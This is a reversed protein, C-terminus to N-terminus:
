EKLRIILQDKPARFTTEHVTEGCRSIGVRYLRGAELGDLTFEGKPDMETEWGAFPDEPDRSWAVRCRGVAEGDPGEVRGRTRLGQALSIHIDRMADGAKGTFRTQYRVCGEKEACLFIDDNSVDPRMVSKLVFQGSGGTTTPPCCGIQEYPGGRPRCSKIFVSVGALGVGKLDTVRGTVVTPPPRRRMTLILEQRSGTTVPQMTPQDGYYDPHFAAISYTRRLTEPTMSEYAEGDEPVVAFHFRGDAKTEQMLGAPAHSYAAATEEQKRLLERHEPTSGGPQGEPHAETVVARASGALWNELSVTVGALPRSEEDIVTGELVAGPPIRVAAATETRARVDCRLDGMLNSSPSLYAEIRYPGAPLDSFTFQGVADTSISGVEQLGGALLWVVAGPIAHLSADVVQGRIRGLDGAVPRLCAPSDIADTASSGSSDIHNPPVSSRPPATQRPSSPRTGSWGAVGAKPRGAQALWTVRVAAIAAMLLAACVLAMRVRRM